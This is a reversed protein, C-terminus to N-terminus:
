GSPAGPNSASKRVCGTLTTTYMMKPRRSMRISVMIQIKRLVIHIGLKSRGIRRDRPLVYINRQLGEVTVCCSVYSSTQKDLVKGIFYVKGELELYDLWYFRLSGDEELASTKSAGSSKHESLTGLTDDAVTLAAHVSLWSPLENAKKEKDNAMLKLKSEPVHVDVKLDQHGNKMVTAPVPDPDIEMCLDDTDFEMDDFSMDAPAPTNIEMKTLRDIAPTVVVSTGDLMKVKKAPKAPSFDESSPFDREEPPDSSSFGNSPGSSRLSSFGVGSSPSSTSPDNYDPSPKRKRSKPVPPPAADMASLISSM